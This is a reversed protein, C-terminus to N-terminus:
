LYLQIQAIFILEGHGNNALVDSSTDDIPIGNPLYMVQGTFMFNIGHIYYNSGLSIEQVDNHSGAPTGALHLYEYRVFPEIKPTLLYAVQIDFTPEYTDRVKAPAALPANETDNAGNPIGTNHRTYRGFYSAYVLLGTHANVYQLDITHSLEDRLGASSNDIGGGMVLLDTQAGSATFHYYDPWHGFFKYEARGALGYDYYHDTTMHERFDSNASRIGDNIGAEFHLPRSDDAYASYMLMAGKTYTNTNGMIDGQLSAEPYRRRSNLMCEHDLPDHLQGAHLWWHSDGLRALFDAEALVPEGGLQQDVTGITKGNLLGDNANGIVNQKVNNRYTSWYVAYRFDPSFLNGDFGFDARRMEMGNNVKNVHQQDNTVDRVQLEFWPRFVYNGDNSQLVFRHADFDFGSTLTGPEVLLDRRQADQAVEAATQREQDQRILEQQRSQLQDLQAKLSEIQASLNGVAPQTAPAPSDAARLIPQCAGIM